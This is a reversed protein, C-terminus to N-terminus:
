IEAELRQLLYRKAEEKHGERVLRRLDGNLARRWEEASAAKSRERLERRVEAAIQALLAYDEPLYAELEERIARSLAPSLGGTSVAVVLEGRRLVSPLIFDCHDPDDAANLWVGRQRRERLVAENVQSDETAVFVLQCSSLDGHRYKRAVYGIRGDGAWSKLRGTLSPSIVTVAAGVKLLAEVKREAVAGGGIVICNRGVMNLFIPYYSM